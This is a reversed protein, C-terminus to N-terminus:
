ELKLLERKEEETLEPDNRVAEAFTQKAQTQPANKSKYRAAPSLTPPLDFFKQLSETSIQFIEALKKELWRPIEKLNRREIKRVLTESVGLMVPLSERAVGKKAATERLDTMPEDAPVRFRAMLNGVFQKNENSLREDIGATEADGLVFFEVDRWDAYAEAIERSFHPYKEQWVRVDKLSLQDKSAFMEILIVQLNQSIDQAM